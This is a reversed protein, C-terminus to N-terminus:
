PFNPATADINLEKNKISNPALPNRLISYGLLQYVFIFFRFKTELNFQKQRICVLISKNIKVIYFFYM